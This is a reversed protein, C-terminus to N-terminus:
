NWFDLINNFSEIFIKPAKLNILIKGKSNLIFSIKGIPKKTDNSGYLIVTREIKHKPYYKTIYLKEFSTFDDLQKIGIDANIYMEGEINVVIKESNDLIILDPLNIIQTKDGAKYKIRDTYKGVVIKEGKNTLFYSRECGAHNSYITFGKSFEEVLIDLFITGIKESSEEYYWYIDNLKAKPIKLGKLKLDVKNAILIFKNAKGVSSQYKLSHQTIVIDKKWGLVRLCKAMITTMGINPDHSLRGGKELKATIEISNAKKYLKVSVGNRTESMSNKLEILEDISEFVNYKEHEIGEKGLIEVGLTKLMKTGFIYTLTPEEKQKIQLNYLMIKKANPYFFNVFVFKSCRQYVGTNRSEKDDTKTEEIAYLPIDKQSPQHNTEFVLYDVFSSKGSIIKLYVKSIKPSKFGTIEYIFLFDAENLIPIIRIPDIFVAINKDRAYKIFITKIVEKKPREEALIWLNM